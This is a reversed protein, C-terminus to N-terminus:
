KAVKVKSPRLLTGKFLYGPQLEEIVTNSPLAADEQVMIAEHKQPDFPKAVVDIREVGRDKLIDHIRKCILSIGEKFDEPSGNKRSCMVARELDDYIPLFSKFFSGVERTVGAEIERQQRKKLNEFDAKLRLYATEEFSLEKKESAESETGDLDQYEEQETQIPIRM